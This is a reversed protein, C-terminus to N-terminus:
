LELGLLIESSVHVLVGICPGDTPIKDLMQVNAVRMVWSEWRGTAQSHLRTVLINRPIMKRVPVTVVHLSMNLGLLGMASALVYKASNLVKLLSLVTAAKAVAASSPAVDAASSSLAAPAGTSPLPSLAETGALVTASPATVISTSAAEGTGSPPPPGGYFAHTSRPDWM